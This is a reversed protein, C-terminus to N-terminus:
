YHHRSGKDCYDATEPSWEEESESEALHEFRRSLHDRVRTDEAFYFVWDGFERRYEKDVYEFGGYYQLRGDDTKRVAVADETIWVRYAARTDLGIETPDVMEMSSDVMRAVTNDIEDLQDFINM